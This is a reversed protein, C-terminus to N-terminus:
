LESSPQLECVYRKKRLEDEIESLMEEEAIESLLGCLGEDTERFSNELQFGTPISIKNNQRRKQQESPTHM